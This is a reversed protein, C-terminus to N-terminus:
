YIEQQYCKECYIIESREPAYSTAFENQCHEDAHIHSVTNTYLGNESTAGICQCKRDWLTYPNRYKLRQYYRSNPSKRPIPLNMKKYLQFESSLIRFAGPSHEDGADACEIVEGVISDTIDKINDPIDVTKLSIPYSNKERERWKFGADLAEEKLLSYYDGAPTENYALPSLESPFFEGYKYVSGKKDVFPMENMHEIIKPVIEFYEEKTYQKNFICYQKNRLGICGFLNSSNGCLFSYYMDSSTWTLATMFLGKSNEGASMTEYGLEFNVGGAYLDYCDNTNGFAYATFKCNELKNAIDFCEHCNRANKIHDGTVDVSAVIDAYKKPFAMALMFFKELNKQLTIYSGDMYEKIKEFYDEKSYQVNFICYLKSRLGVSGFCNTCNQCDWLLNSDICKVSFYVYSSNYCDRSKYAMVCSEMGECGELDFSNKSKMSQHLYACDENIDSAFVLYCNKSQYTFNCYDSNVDQLNTAHPQPVKDLLEKFQEFFSRSFDYEQAYTKADWADGWWYKQEYVPFSVDSHYNSILDKEGEATLCKRRYLNRENRWVLRRILRCEPCFTPAPVKIKEYFNFDEQEIMFDKKCNQCNRNEM